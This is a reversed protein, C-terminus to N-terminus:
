AGARAIALLSGGAPLSLGRGILGRELALSRSLVARRAGRVQLESEIRVAGDRSRRRALAMAPLALSVFSTVLEPEFGAARLKAVLERRRYRRRHGGYEDAGSWLWPHQPVTLLVGGGPRLAERASALAGADDDVHELVDFAGVVDFRERWRLESLDLRHLEADPVRRRAIALGEEHQDIGTIRLSPFSRRVAATVFGTGCGIELYDRAAPFYRGLAWAILRNRGEFWWSGEELGELSAYAEVPYSAADRGAPPSTATV